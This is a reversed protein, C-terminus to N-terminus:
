STRQESPSVQYPHFAGIAPCGVSKGGSLGLAVRWERANHEGKPGSAVREVWVVQRFRSVSFGAIPALALQGFMRRIPPFRWDCIWADDHCM